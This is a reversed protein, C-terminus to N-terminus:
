MIKNPSKRPAEVYEMYADGISNQDTVIRGGDSFEIDVQYNDPYYQLETKKLQNIVKRIPRKSEVHWVMTFPKNDKRRGSVSVHSVDCRTYRSQLLSLLVKGINDFYDTGWNFTSYKRSM